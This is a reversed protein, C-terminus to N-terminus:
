DASGIDDTYVDQLLENEKSEHHMLETSFSHFDHELRHWWEASADGNAATEALGRITERFSNHEDRLENTIETVRPARQSVDDFFGDFEEENFHTELHECLSAMMESVHPVTEKQEALTRHVTGLLARLEEHERRIEEYHSAKETM